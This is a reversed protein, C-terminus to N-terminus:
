HKARADKLLSSEIIEGGIITMEVNIKGINEPNVKFPDDSLLVFDALKGEELTGKM